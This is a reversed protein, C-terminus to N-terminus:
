DVDENARDEQVVMGQADNSAGNDTDDAQSVAHELKDRGNLRRGVHALGVSAPASLLHLVSAVWPDLPSPSHRCVIVFLYPAKSAGVDSPWTL